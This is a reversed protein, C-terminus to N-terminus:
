DQLVAVAEDLSGNLQRLIERLESTDYQPFIAKLAKVKKELEDSENLRKIIQPKM